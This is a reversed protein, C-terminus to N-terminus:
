INASGKIIISGNPFTIGGLSGEGEDHKTVSLKGFGHTQMAQIIDEPPRIRYGFEDFKLAKLTEAPSFRGPERLRRRAM